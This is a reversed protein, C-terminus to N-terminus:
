NFYITTPNNIFEIIPPDSVCKNDYYYQLNKYKLYECNYYYYLQHKVKLHEKNKLYYKQRSEKLTM